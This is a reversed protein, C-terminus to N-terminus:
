NLDLERRGPPGRARHATTLNGSSGSAQRTQELHARIRGIVQPDEFSAIIKAKGGCRECPEIDIRFVWKLRQAWSM